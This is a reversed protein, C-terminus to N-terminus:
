RDGRPIAMDRGEGRFYSATSPQERQTGEDPDIGQARLWDKYETHIAAALVPDTRHAEVWRDMLERPPAPHGGRPAYTLQRQARERRDAYIRRLIALVHAPMIPETSERQHVNLAELADAYNVDHLRHAWEEAREVQSKSRPDILSAQTLLTHAEIADM